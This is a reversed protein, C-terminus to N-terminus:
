WCFKESIEIYIKSFNDFIIFCLLVEFGNDIKKKNLNIELWGNWFFFIISLVEKRNKNGFKNRDYM